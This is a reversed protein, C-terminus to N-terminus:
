GHCGHDPSRTWTWSTISLPPTVTKRQVWEPWANSRHSSTGAHINTRDPPTLQRTATARLDLKGRETGQSLKQM